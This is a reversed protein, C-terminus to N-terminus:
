LKVAGPNRDAGDQKPSKIKVPPSHIGKLSWGDYLGPKAPPYKSGNSKLIQM